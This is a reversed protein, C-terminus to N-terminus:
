FSIFHHVFVCLIPIPLNSQYNLGAYDFSHILTFQISMCSHFCDFNVKLQDYREISADYENRPLTPHAALKDQLRQLVEAHSIADQLLVRYKELASKKESLDSLGEAGEIPSPM